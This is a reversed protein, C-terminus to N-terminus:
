WVVPVLYPIRGVAGRDGFLYAFWRGDPTDILGGQAVGKDQLVVRGEYPGFLSDARHCIVTRVGGRPWCINFLYYKGNIKFMQSGEAGLMLNEGAPLGANEILVKESEPKIGSFDPEVERIFIKDGGNIM